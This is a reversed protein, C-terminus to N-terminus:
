FFASSFHCANIAKAVDAMKQLPLTINKIFMTMVIAVVVTLVGFMTVIKNRLDSLAPSITDTGAEATIGNSSQFNINCIMQNLEESQMEFYFEIGIM